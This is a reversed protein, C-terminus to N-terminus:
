RSVAAQRGPQAAAKTGNDRGLPIQYSARIQAIMADTRIRCILASRNFGDQDNWRALINDLREIRTVLRTAIEICADRKEEHKLAIIIFTLVIDPSDRAFRKLICYDM